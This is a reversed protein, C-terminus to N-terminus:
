SPLLGSQETYNLDHMKIRKKEKEEERRRKKKKKDKHADILAVKEDCACLQYCGRSKNQLM